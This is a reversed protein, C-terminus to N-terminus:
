YSPPSYPRQPTTAASGMPGVTGGFLTGTGPGRGPGLLGSSALGQGITVPDACAALTALTAIALARLTNKM